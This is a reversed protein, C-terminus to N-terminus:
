PFEGDEVVLGEAWRTGTTLKDLQVAGPICDKFRPDVIDFVEASM